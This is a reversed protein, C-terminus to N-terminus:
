IRKVTYYMMRKGRNEAFFIGEDERRLGTRRGGLGDQLETEGGKSLGSV